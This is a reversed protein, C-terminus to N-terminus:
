SPSVLCVLLCYVVGGINLLHSGQLPLALVLADRARLVNGLGGCYEYMDAASDYPVLVLCVDHTM